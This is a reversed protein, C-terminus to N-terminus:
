RIAFGIELTVFVPVPEGQRLGPRFLWKQAAAVAKQDLGFARDLSRVIRIDTCRGDTQVVCELIVVGQMRARMADATYEPPVRMILTPSTVGNGARLGGGTM